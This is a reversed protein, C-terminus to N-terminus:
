KFGDQVTIKHTLLGPEQKLAEEEFDEWTPNPM